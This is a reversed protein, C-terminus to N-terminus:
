ASKKPGRGSGAYRRWIEAVVDRRVRDPEQQADVIVSQPVRSVMHLYRQRQEELVTPSHDQKRAYLVSSPADLLVVLDPVPCLKRMLWHQLRKHPAGGKRHVLSNTPYRDFVVLRGRMRHYAGYRYRVIQEVLGNVARLVRMIPRPVIRREQELWRSTPLNVTSSARNTGMYVYRAPLYFNDVLTHALTTKGAGDPALLSIAIGPTRISRTRRDLARLLRTSATRWKRVLKGHPELKNAVAHRMALLQHWKDDEILQKVAPWPTQAPFLAAIQVAMYGDDQLDVLLERLRSQYGPKFKEKNLLCHLLLTLFEEEARSVFCHGNWQRNRLCPEALSTQLIPVPKGYAIETVVDLKIWYNGVKDFGIFFHHPHQGWRDLYAYGLEGLVAQLQARQASSVLLDIDGENPSLVLEEFGRLLCYDIGAEDLAAFTSQLLPALAVSTDTSITTLSAVM